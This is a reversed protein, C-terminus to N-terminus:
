RLLSSKEPAATYRMPWEFILFNKSGSNMAILIGPAVEIGDTADASGQLIGIPHSQDGDRSYLFYRSGGLIQDTSVLYGTEPATAYIALGERDGMYGTKGFLALERAADPHDPDAYYKRIGTTEDAYYVFGLADDVVIAEIEGMGSFKGFRRVLRLAPGSEIRYQWLYGEGPGSKRGVIAFVAGDARKFLAIGMPAAFDGTENEFVRSTAIESLTRRAADISYIRVSGAERETTVALDYTQEGLKVDQEIDVNNPRALGTIRQLIKGTMDFVLLAGNPKEV